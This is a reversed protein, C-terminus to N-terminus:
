KVAGKQRDQAAAMVREQWTLPEDPSKRFWGEHTLDRKPCDLAHIMEHGYANWRWNESALEVTGFECWTVGEVEFDYEDIKFGGSGGDAPPHIRVYWRFMRLRECAGPVKEELVPIVRDEARQFGETDEGSYFVGCKSKFDARPGLGPLDDPNGVTLPGGCGMLVFVAALLLAGLVLFTLADGLAQQDNEDM